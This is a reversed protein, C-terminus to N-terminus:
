SEGSAESGIRREIARVLEKMAPILVIFFVTGILLMSHPIDPRVRIIVLLGLGWIVVLIVSILRDARRTYVAIFHCFSGALVFVHFIAHNFKIRKIAYLLAGVTYAIGGAAVWTIGEAALNERMPGIAFVMMWGMAVYMLTSLLKFRGTFFLKLGIGCIAM